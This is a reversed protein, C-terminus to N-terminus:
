AVLAGTWLNGGGKCCCILAKAAESLPGSGVAM